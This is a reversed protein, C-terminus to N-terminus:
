VSGLISLLAAAIFFLAAVGCLVFIDKKELNGGLRKVSIYVILFFNITIWGCVASLIGIFQLISNPM